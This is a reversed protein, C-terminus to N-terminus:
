GAVFNGVVDWTPLSPSRPVEVSDTAAAPPTQSVPPSLTQWLLTSIGLIVCYGAFWHLRRQTLMRLLLKLAGLGVVFAVVTGVALPGWALDVPPSELMDKAELVIAGSIAPIAILFSFRAASIRDVGMMLASSITCGSRSVGPLLALAQFCGIVWAVLWPLHQDSFKNSELRQAAILLGATVFLGSAAMVPSDFTEEFWDKLTLGVVAAPITALVIQACLRWNRLTQRIDHAYVILIALLTGAHLTIITAMGDRSEEMGLGYRMAANAIVLHGDSSIPLFESIGQVIGLVILRVYEQWM